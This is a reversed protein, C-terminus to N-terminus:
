KGTRPLRSVSRASVFLWRPLRSLSGDVFLRGVAVRGARTAVPLFQRFFRVWSM